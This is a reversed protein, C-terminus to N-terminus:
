QGRYLLGTPALYIRMDDQIEHELVAMKDKVSNGTLTVTREGVKESAIGDDFGSVTTENEFSYLREALACTAMRVEDGGTYQDSHGLTVEKVRYAAKKEYYSFETEPIKVKKSECYTEKYFTYDVYM